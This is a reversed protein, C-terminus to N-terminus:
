RTFEIFSGGASISVSELEVTSPESGDAPVIFGVSRFNYKSLDIEPKANRPDLGGHRVANGTKCDILTIADTNWICGGIVDFAYHWQAVSRWNSPGYETGLHLGDYDRVLDVWRMRIFSKDVSNWLGIRAALDEAEGQTDIRIIRAEPSVIVQYRHNFADADNWFESSTKWSDELAYWLGRPKHHPEDKPKVSYLGTIPTRSYHYWNM